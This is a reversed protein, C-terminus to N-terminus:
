TCQQDNSKFINLVGRASGQVTVSDLRNNISEANSITEEFIKPLHDCALGASPRTLYREQNKRIQRKKMVMSHFQETWQELEEKSYASLYLTDKSNKQGQHLM